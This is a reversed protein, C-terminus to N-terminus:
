RSGMVEMTLGWKKKYVSDSDICEELRIVSNKTSREQIIKRYYDCIHDFDTERFYPCISNSCYSEISKIPSLSM